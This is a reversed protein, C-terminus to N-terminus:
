FGKPRLWFSEEWKGGPPISQLEKYLGKHALNMSDTIGVMPEIAIFGRNPLNPNTGTLPVSPAAPTPAPAPPPANGGRGRGGGGGGRANAPNPSYLVISKYNPGLIVDLQQGKGKVSMVARGQGDRELDGFVDDLDFDKLPVAHRDPFLKEVPETEGTPIKNEALLWHTKAGISLTWDERTSDTLQFYPHFGIAVPMPEISVNEIRTRVELVGDQLRYTMTLTHAFPFQQMWQPNRYFDLQSTVWAANGDAKAEVMKWDKAGSLYGHIPIPGRVNGLEMDFNYKKGNAYFAPEDLRNAFPALLPIGNLGPRARFEDVTAFTMRILNQGKVVMEYANSVSTMVSVTTDTKTDRLQVIDGTQKASYRPQALTVNAISLTIAIAFASIASKHNNIASQM